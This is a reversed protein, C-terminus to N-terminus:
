RFVILMVFGGGITVELGVYIFVFAALIHVHVQKLVTSFSGADRARRSVAESQGGEDGSTTAEVSDVRAPTAATLEVEEQEHSPVGMEHLIEDYGKGRFLWAFSAMDSM